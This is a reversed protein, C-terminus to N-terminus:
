EDVGDIWEDGYEGQADQRKQKQKKKKWQDYHYEDDIFNELDEMDIDKLSKNGFHKNKM